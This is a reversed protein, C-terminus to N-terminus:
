HSRSAEDHKWSIETCPFGAESHTHVQRVVAKRLRTCTHLTQGVFNGSHQIKEMLGEQGVMGESGLALDQQARLDSHLHPESYSVRPRLVTLDTCDKVKCAM